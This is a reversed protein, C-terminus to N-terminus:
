LTPAIYKASTDEAITICNKNYIDIVDCVFIKRKYTKTYESKKMLTMLKKAPVM